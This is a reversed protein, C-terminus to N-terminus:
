KVCDGDLSSVMSRLERILRSTQGVETSASSGKAKNGTDSSEDGQRGQSTADPATGQVITLEMSEEQGAMEQVGDPISVSASVAAARPSRVDGQKRAAPASSEFSAVVMQRMRGSIRTAWWTFAEDYITPLHFVVGDLTRTGRGSTGQRQIAVADMDGSGEGYGGMGGDGNYGDVGDAGGVASLMFRGELFVALALWDGWKRRPGLLPLVDVGRKERGAGERSDRGARVGPDRKESASDAAHSGMEVSRAATAAMAAVSMDIDVGVGGGEELNLLLSPPSLLAAVRPASLAKEFSRTFLRDLDWGALGSRVALAGLAPRQSQSAMAGPAQHAEDERIRSLVTTAVINRQRRREVARFPARGATSAKFLRSGCLMSIKESFRQLGVTDALSIFLEGRRQHASNRDQGNDESASSELAAPARMSTSPELSLNEEELCTAALLAALGQVHATINKRGQWWLAPEEPHEEPSEWSVVTLLFGSGAFIEGNREGKEGAEAGSKEERFCSESIVAAAASCGRAWEILLRFCSATLRVLARVVINSLRRLLAKEELAARKAKAAALNADAAARAAVITIGDGGEQKASDTDGKGDVVSQEQGVTKTGDDASSSLDEDECVILCNSTRFSLLAKLSLLLASILTDGKKFLSPTETRMGRGSNEIADEKSPLSLRLAVEKAALSGNLVDELLRASTWQRSSVARLMLATRTAKEHHQRDLAVLDTQYSRLAAIADLLLWGTARCLLTGATESDVKVINGMDQSNCRERDAGPANENYNLSALDDGVDPPPAIAHGIVSMQMRGDSSARLFSRWLAAAALCLARNEERERLLLLSIHAEKPAARPNFPSSSPDSDKTTGALSSTGTRAETLKNLYGGKANDPRVVPGSDTLPSLSVVADNCLLTIRVLAKLVRMRLVGDVSAALSVDNAAGDRQGRSDNPEMVANTASQMVSVRRGMILEAVEESGGVLEALRLLSAVRIMPESSLSVAHKVIEKQRGGEAGEREIDHGGSASEDGEGDGSSVPTEKAVVIQTVADGFATTLLSPVLCLLTKQAARVVTGKGLRIRERWNMLQKREQERHKGTAQNLAGRLAMETESVVPSNGVLQAVVRLALIMSVRRQASLRCVLLKPPYPVYVRALIGAGVSVMIAGAAIPSDSRYLMTLRDRLSLARHRPSGVTDKRDLDLNVPPICVWDTGHIKLLQLLMQQVAVGLQLFLKQAMGMEDSLINVMLKLSDSAILGRMGESHMIKLLRDFAGSFALFQRLGECSNLRLRSLLTLFSIHHFSIWRRLDRGLKRGTRAARKGTSGDSGDESVTLSNKERPLEEGNIICGVMEMLAIM